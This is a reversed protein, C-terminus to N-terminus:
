KLLNKTSEAMLAAANPLVAEDFDFRPHHHGFSLGKETNASGVMFYCGPVQELFFAMDESVTVRYNEDNNCDPLVERAAEAVKGAVISDSVVPPSYRNIHVTASCGFAQAIGHSIEEFRRLVTERVMPDFTRISGAMEATQPIVNNTEGAKLQAVSVVASHLPSINRSVITQFGNIIQAAAVIPDIAKDPMAGHGGKGEILISFLDAGAMLAGPHIALWGLPKENWLHLALAYDVRPSELVGARLVREAGGLGEEAPQFLFKVTGHLEKRHQNLLRAVTLGTAVHGDHGCAHMVGPVQSQYSVENEEQIPLADMDFRLLVVPGPEVGELLGVVGTEAIGTHVEIGLGRLENAIIAATRVEKFGLEPHQHLDRRLRQSYESLWRAEELIDSM